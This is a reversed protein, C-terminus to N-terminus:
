ILVVFTQSEDLRDFSKAVESIISQWRAGDGGKMSATGDILYVVPRPSSPAAAVLLVAFAPAFAHILGLTFRMGSGALNGGLRVTHTCRSTVRRSYRRGASLAGKLWPADDKTISVRETRRCLQGGEKDLM